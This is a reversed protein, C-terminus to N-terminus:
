SLLTRHKLMAYIKICVELKNGYKDRIHDKELRVEFRGPRLGACEEMVVAEKLSFV